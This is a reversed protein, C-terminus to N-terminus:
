ADSFHEPTGGAQRIQWMRLYAQEIRRRFGDTDFLACQSRDAALKAKLAQIAIPDGALSIARAEYDPLNEVILEQLGVAQLLSAAVRGPFTTGRCTLLPVGSWLSDSATTHANYPLTDVFLDAHQLRALHQALPQFPAFVLREGQVGHQEAAQRLNQPFPAQSDLLWLVSGPTAKLIRMWAAFMAPLLKYSQNFNCFVFGNEPLGHNTRAVRAAGIARRSDNVQYCGPLYVVKETYFSRDQEPIVVRDAIIYDMYPAGLTGPFGLYNVQIPAPRRAFVGMRHAGFYGNLNVLIDIEEARIKRAAADDPLGAIPVFRDFAKELRNRMASDDSKGNDIAVVEFRERDHCEYLGAMLHATAQEGFEGSRYGIRNKDRTNPAHPQRRQAPYQDTAYLSSCRLAQSPKEAIAQYVFPRIVKRGERLGAEIQALTQPFERWDAGYMRLHLLEGLAYPHDPDAAIVRELDATAPELLHKDRWLLDARNSLALANQPNLAIAEDFSALAEDIRRFMRLVAGRGNWAIDSKQIELARDYSALAEALRGGQWHLWARVILAAAFRPQIALAREMSDLAAQHRGLAVQLAGRRYWAEGFEPQLALTRDYSELAEPFRALEVLAVARNFHLGADQPMGVLAQDYCRLAAQFQQLRALAVGRSALVTPNGPQALLVSDFCTLAEGARDLDLLALGRARLAQVHGPHLQLTRDFCDLAEAPRKLEALMAGRNFWAEVLAPQLALARSCHELAEELRGASRLAASQNILAGINTPDLELASKLLDIAERHRGQQARLAGLLQLAAINLPDVQLIQLYIAEAPGLAGQRHHAVAEQILAQFSLSTMDWFVIFAQLILAIRPARPSTFHTTRGAAYMERDFIHIIIGRNGRFRM